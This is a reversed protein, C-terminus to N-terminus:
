VVSLNLRHPVLEALPSLELDPIWCYASLNKFGAQIKKDKIRLRLRTNVKVGKGRKRQGKIINNKPVPDPLYGRHLPRIPLISYLVSSNFNPGGWIPVWNPIVTNIVPFYLM